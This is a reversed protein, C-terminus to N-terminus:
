QTQLSIAFDAFESRYSGMFVHGIMALALFATAFTLMFHVMDSFVISVTDVFSAIRPHLSGLAICRCFLVFVLMTGLHLVQQITAAHSSFANFMEMYGEESGAAFAKAIIGDDTDFTHPPLVDALLLTILYVVSCLSLAVDFHWMRLKQWSSGSHLVVKASHISSIFYM